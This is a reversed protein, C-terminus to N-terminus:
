YVGQGPYVLCNVANASGAVFKWMGPGTFIRDFLVPLKLYTVAYSGLASSMANTVNVMNTHVCPDDIPLNFRMVDSLAYIPAATTHTAGTTGAQARLVVVTTANTATVRLIEYDVRLFDNVEFVANSVCFTNTVADM